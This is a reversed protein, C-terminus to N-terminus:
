SEIYCRKQLRVILNLFSIMVLVTFKTLNILAMAVFDNQAHECIENSKKM